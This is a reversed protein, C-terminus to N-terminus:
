PYKNIRAKLQENSGFSHFFLGIKSAEFRM